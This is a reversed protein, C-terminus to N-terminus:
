PPTGACEVRNRGAHKAVYLARDARDILDERSEGGILEAVGASFTILLHENNALFLRRTLERQVRVLTEAAEPEPTDPLVIVFEEGGYRAVVDTPRLTERVVQALHELARDGVSHGHADNLRKFHDVDLIALSYPRGSRTARAEEVAIAEDFGRRNLLGTLPDERVRESMAELENELDRIKSEHSTATTRQAQVHDRQRIVDAQLLRTDVLLAEVVRSLQSLDDTEEMRRRHEAIRTQYQGTAESMDELGAVFVAVMDKLAQKAQDLSLKRASQKYIVARLARETDRLRARTVPMALLLKAADVQGNMWRDDGVLEGVNEAMLKLLSALGRVIDERESARLEWRMWLKRVAPALKGPDAGGAPERCQAVIAQAEADEGGDRSRAVFDMTGALLERWEEAGEAARPLAPPIAGPNRAGAVEIAAGAPALPTSSWSHVLGSLRVHMREEDLSFASLVHELAERKKAQTLGAHRAELQRLLDRVLPAWRPGTGASQLLSQLLTRAADWNGRAVARALPRAQRGAEPGRACAREAVDALVQAAPHDTSARPGGSLEHFMAAYNEPTPPLRQRALQRLAERATDSPAPSNPSRPTASM